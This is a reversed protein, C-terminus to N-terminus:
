STAEPNTMAQECAAALFGAQGWKCMQFDLPKEDRAPRSELAALHERNTASAGKHWFGFRAPFEIMFGHGTRM